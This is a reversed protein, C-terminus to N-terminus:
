EIMEFEAYRTQDLQNWIEECTVGVLKSESLFQTLEGRRFGMGPTALRGFKSFRVLEYRGDKLLSISYRAAASETALGM